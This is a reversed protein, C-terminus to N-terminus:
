AGHLSLTYLATTAPAHCCLARKSARRRTRPRARRRRPSRRHVTRRRRGAGARGTRCARVQAVRALPHRSGHTGRRLARLAARPRAPRRRLEPVRARPSCLRSARRSTTIRTGGGLSRRQKTTRSSGRGGTMDPRLRGVAGAAVRADSRCVYIGRYLWATRDDLLTASFHLRATLQGRQRDEHRALDARVALRTTERERGGGAAGSEGLRDQGRDFRARAIRGQVRERADSAREIDADARQEGLVIGDAALQDATVAAFSDGELRADAAPQDVYVTALAAELRELHAELGAAVVAAARVCGSGFLEHDAQVARERDARRPM